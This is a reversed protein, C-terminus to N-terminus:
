SLVVSQLYIFAYRWANKVKANCPPLHDAEHNMRKAEPYLAGISMQYSILPAEFGTHISHRRFDGAGQRIAWGTYQSLHEAERTYVM